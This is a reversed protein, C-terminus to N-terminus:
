RDPSVVHLFTACDPCIETVKEERIVAAAARDM